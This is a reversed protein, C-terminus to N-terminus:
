FSYLPITLKYLLKTLYMHRLNGFPSLNLYNPDRPKLLSGMKMFSAFEGADNYFRTLAVQYKFSLVAMYAQKQSGTQHLMERFRKIKDNFDILKYKFDVDSFHYDWLGPGSVITKKGTSDVIYESLIPINHEMQGTQRSKVSFVKGYFVKKIDDENIYGDKASGKGEIGMQVLKRVGEKLIKQSAIPMTTYTAHYDGNTLIQDYLALSEKHNPDMHHPEFLGTNSNKDFIQEDLSEFSLPDTGFLDKLQTLVNWAKYHPDKFLSSYKSSSIKNIKYINEVYGIGQSLTNLANIAEYYYQM